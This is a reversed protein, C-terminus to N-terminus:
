HTLKDNETVDFLLLSGAMANVARWVGCGTIPCRSCVAGCEVCAVELAHRYCKKECTERHEVIAEDRCGPHDCWTM